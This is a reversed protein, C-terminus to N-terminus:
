APTGGSSNAPELWVQSDRFVGDFDLKLIKGQDSAPIVFHKRYWGVDLPLYGHGRDNTSAYTGDLVYDHPLDVHQWTADDYDGAIM